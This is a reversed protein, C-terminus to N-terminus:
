FSVEAAAAIAVAECLMGRSSLGGAASAAEDASTLADSM